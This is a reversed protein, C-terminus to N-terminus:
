FSSIGLGVMVSGNDRKRTSEVFRLLLIMPILFETEKSM